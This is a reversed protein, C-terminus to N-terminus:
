FELLGGGGGGRLSAPLVMVEAQATAGALPVGEVAGGLQPLTVWACILYRQGVLLMEEQADGPVKSSRSRGQEHMLVPFRAEVRSGHTTTEAIKTRCTSLVSRSRGGLGASLTAALEVAAAAAAAAAAATGAVNDNGPVTGVNHTSTAAGSNFIMICVTGETPIRVGTTELRVLLSTSGAAGRGGIVDGGGQKTQEVEGAERVEGAEVEELHVRISLSPLVVPQLPATLSPAASSISLLPPAFPDLLHALLESNQWVFWPLAAQPILASTQQEDSTQREASTQAASERDLAQRTVGERTIGTASLEVNKGHRGYIDLGEKLARRVWNGLVVEYPKILGAPVKDKVDETDGEEGDISVSSLIGFALVYTGDDNLALVRAKRWKKDGDTGLNWQALVVDGPLFSKQLSLRDKMEEEREREKEGEEEKEEMVEEEESEEEKEEEQHSLAETEDL